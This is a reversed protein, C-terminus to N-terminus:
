EWILTLVQTSRVRLLSSCWVDTITMRLLSCYQHKSRDDNGVLFINIAYTTLIRRLICLVLLYPLSTSCCTVYTASSKCSFPDGSNPNVLITLPCSHHLLPRKYAVCALDHACPLTKATLVQSTFSCMPFSWKSQFIAWANRWKSKVHM